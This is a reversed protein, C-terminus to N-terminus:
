NKYKCTEINFEEYLAKKFTKKIKHKKFRKDLWNWINRSKSLLTINLCIIDKVKLENKLMNELKVIDQAINKRLPKISRGFSAYGNVNICYYSILYRNM